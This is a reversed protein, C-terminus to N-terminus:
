ELARGANAGVLDNSTARSFLACLKEPLAQKDTGRNIINVVWLNLYM